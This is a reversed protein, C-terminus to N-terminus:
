RLCSSFRINRFVALLIVLGGCLHAIRNSVMRRSGM